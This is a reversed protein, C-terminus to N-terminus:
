DHSKAESELYGGKDGKHVVKGGGFDLEVHAQIRYLTRGLHIKTDTNLLKYTKQTKTESM